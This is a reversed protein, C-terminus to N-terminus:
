PITWHQNAANRCTNAELQVGNSKSYNPITLCLTFGHAKLEYTNNEQHVWLEDQSGSCTYLIVKGGNGANGKDNLCLGNHILEGAAYRWTQSKLKACGYSWVINRNAYSNDKDSVCKNDYGQIVGSIGGSPVSATPTPTPSTVTGSGSNSNADYDVGVSVDQADATLGVVTLGISVTCSETSPIDINQQIYVVSPVAGDASGTTATATSPCSVTWTVNGQLGSTGSPSELQLYIDTPDPVSVDSITCKTGSGLNAFCTAANDALSTGQTLALGAITGGAVLVGGAAIAVVAQKMNRM